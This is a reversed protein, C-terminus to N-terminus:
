IYVHSAFATSIQHLGFTSICDIFFVFKNLCSIYILLDFLLLEFVPFLFAFVIRIYVVYYNYMFVHICM